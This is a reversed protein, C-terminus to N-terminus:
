NHKMVIKKMNEYSDSGYYSKSFIIEVGYMHMYVNGHNTIPKSNMKYSM